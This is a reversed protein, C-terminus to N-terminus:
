IGEGKILAGSSGFYQIADNMREMRVDTCNGTIHRLQIYSNEFYSFTVKVIFKKLVVAKKWMLYVYPYSAKFREDSFHCSEQSCIELAIKKVLSDGCNRRNTIKICGKFKENTFSHSEQIISKAVEM